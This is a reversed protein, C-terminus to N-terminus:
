RRRYDDHLDEADQGTAEARQCAGENQADHVQGLAKLQQLFAEQQRRKARLEQGVAQLSNWEADLQDLQQM